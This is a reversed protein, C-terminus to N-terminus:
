VKELLSELWFHVDKPSELRYLAETRRPNTSVVIPFGGQLKIVEFAEEDKDDDGIYIKLASGWEEGQLLYELTRGKNAQIPAVEIFKHGGLIRFTELNIIDSAIERAKAIVAVAEDDEAHRAHIALAWGKDELYYGAEALILSEWVPKLRELCPRVQGFPLREIRHGDETRLEIGYTGALLLGHIPVLKELHSLRRGSIVAIRFRSHDNIRELLEIVDPQPEIIAPTPSFDALTGDYDLFLWIKEATKVRVALQDISQM